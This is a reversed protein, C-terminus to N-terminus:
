DVLMVTKKKKQKGNNEFFDELGTQEAGSLYVAELEEVHQLWAM